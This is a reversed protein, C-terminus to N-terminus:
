FQFHETAWISARFWTSDCQLAGQNEKAKQHTKDHSAKGKVDDTFKDSNDASHSRDRANQNGSPIRKTQYYLAFTATDLCFAAPYGRKAANISSDVFHVNPDDHYVLHNNIVALPYLLGTTQRAAHIIVVSGLNAGAAILPAFLKGRQHDAARNWTAEYDMQALNVNAVYARDSKM